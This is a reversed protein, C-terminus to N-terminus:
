ATFLENQPCRGFIRDIAVRNAEYVKTVLSRPCGMYTGDNSEYSPWEKAPRWYDQQFQYETVVGYFPDEKVVVRWLTKGLRVPNSEFLHHQIDVM